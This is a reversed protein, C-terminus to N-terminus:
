LGVPTKLFVIGAKTRWVAGKLTISPDIEVPVPIAPQSEPVPAQQPAEPEAIPTSEGQVLTDQLAGLVLAGALFPALLSRRRITDTRCHMLTSAFITTPM